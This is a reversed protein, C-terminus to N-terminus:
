GQNGTEGRDKARTPSKKLFINIKDADMVPSNVCRVTSHVNKLSGKLVRLDDMVPVLYILTLMEHLSDCSSFRTSGACRM